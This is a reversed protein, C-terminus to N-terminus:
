QANPGVADPVGNDYHLMTTAVLGYPFAIKCFLEAPGPLEGIEHLGTKAFPPVTVGVLCDDYYFVDVM